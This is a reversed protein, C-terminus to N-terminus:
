SVKKFKGKQLKGLKYPGYSIRILRTVTMNISEFINRIERNKGERLNMQLWCYTNSSSEVKAIIPKYKIGNTYFGKKLRDIIKSDVKGQIKVKYVREYNNQPLEFNRKINGNNTLLILGESNYDLRGISIINELKKPLFDFITKRNKPDSHTVLCGKPKNFLYIEDILNFPINKKDLQIINDKSVNIGPRDITQNDIKVRGDYILQEVQRRSYTTSRAIVKSIRESKQNKEM